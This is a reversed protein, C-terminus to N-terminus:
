RLTVPFLRQCNRPRFIKETVMMQRDKRVEPM